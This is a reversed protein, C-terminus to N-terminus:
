TSIYNALKLLRSSFNMEVQQAARLNIDFVVKNQRTNMEIMVGKDALGESDTVTLVPTNALQRLLRNLQWTDTHGLYLAQCTHIDKEDTIHVVEILVQSHVPKGQLSALEQDLHTYGMVCLRFPHEPAVPWETFRLFNYIYAVKVAREDLPATQATVGQSYLFLAIICSILRSAHMM